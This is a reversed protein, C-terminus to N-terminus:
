AGNGSKGVQAIPAQLFRCDIARFRGNSTRIPAAHRPEAQRDHGANSVSTKQVMTNGYEGTRQGTVVM